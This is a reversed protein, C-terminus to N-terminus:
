SPLLLRMAYAIRVYAPVTVEYAGRELAKLVQACFSDVEGFSSKIRAPIRELVEPTFMETRVLAPYVCLVHIGLPDFEYALSESLVAGAFRTSAYMSKDPPRRNAA